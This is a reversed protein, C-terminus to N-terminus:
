VWNEVRLSEVREFEKVNNTVLTLDFALATAAIQLDMPGIIKGNMELNARIKGCIDACGEDFPLVELPSVFKRIATHNKEIQRSKYAGYMLEYVTISSIFIDGLSFESFKKIVREPHSKIIYICINTDLIYKM